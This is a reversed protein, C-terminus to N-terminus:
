KLRLRLPTGGSEPTLDALTPHFYDNPVIAYLGYLTAAFELCLSKLNTAAFLEMYSNTVDLSSQSFQVKGFEPRDINMNVYPYYIPTRGMRTPGHVFLALSPYVVKTTGVTETMRAITISDLVYNVNVKKVEAEMQEYLSAQESTFKEPDIRWASPCDTVYLDWCPIVKVTGDENLLCTKDESLTLEQFKATGITDQHELRFGNPTYCCSVWHARLPDSVREGIRFHGSRPSLMYLTDTGDTLYYNSISTSTIYDKMEDTAAIYEQPTTDLKKLRVEAGHREGRLIVEDDEYSMIVFNHDGAMGAGDKVISQPAASPDVPDVFVTLVDNWTNFALVPGDELLMQYVSTSETYKGANGDRLMRHNSSMTVKGNADFKAFLNFGEFGEAGTFAYYQMVWGQPASVLIEKVAENTHEVRLSASEDFYDDEEFRCSTFLLAPLLALLAFRYLQRNKM